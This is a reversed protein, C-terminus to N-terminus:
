STERLHDSLQDTSIFKVDPWRRTISILLKKLAGLGLDANKPDISGIYNVRHTNIVAPRRFAFAIAIQALARDVIDVNPNMVPEFHVNRVNYRQGHENRQGFFHRIVTHSSAQGMPRRQVRVGQFWRVGHSSLTPNLEPDWTYCPAIFSASSYGFIKRFLKLGDVLEHAQMAVEEASDWDLAEM